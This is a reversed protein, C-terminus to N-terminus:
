KSGFYKSKVIVSKSKCNEYEGKADTILEPTNLAEFQIKNVYDYATELLISPKVCNKNAGPHCTPQARLGICLQKCYNCQCWTVPEIEHIAGFLIGKAGEVFKQIFPPNCSGYLLLVQFRGQLQQALLRAKEREAETPYMPKIEIWLNM